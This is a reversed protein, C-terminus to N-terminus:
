IEGLRLDLGALASQRAPLVSRVGDLIRHFEAHTRLAGAFSDAYDDFAKRM